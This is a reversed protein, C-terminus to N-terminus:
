VSRHAGAFNEEVAVSTRFSTGARRWRGPRPDVVFRVPYYFEYAATVALPNAPPTVFRILPADTNNDELTYHTTVTQLVANVYVQLTSADIQTHALPFDTTSGDGTGLAGDPLATTVTSLRTAYPDKWLWTDYAGQRADLFDMWDEFTRTTGTAIGPGPVAVDFEFRYVGYAGDDPRGIVVGDNGRVQVTTHLSPFSADAVAQFDFVVTSM